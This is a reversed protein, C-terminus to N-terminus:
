FEVYEALYRRGEGKLLPMDEDIRWSARALLTDPPNAFSLVAKICASGWKDKAPLEDWVVGFEQSLAEKIKDCNMHQMRSQPMRSRGFSQISNRMADLQRWYVCNVVEEKPVNFCRADFTAKGLMPAYIKKFDEESETLEAALEYFARNFEMTAMSAAVSCMKQVDYDFFAGQELTKYDVLVLTIEDSQTYGFVCGEVSECLRLMTRRMSEAMVEDIPKKFKKTFTHFAKGDIRIVVPTRRLLKTRSATEYYSKMRDGLSDNIM